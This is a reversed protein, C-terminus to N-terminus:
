RGFELPSSLGFLEGSPTAAWYGRYPTSIMTELTLGSMGPARPCSPPCVTTSRVFSTKHHGHLYPTARGGCRKPPRWLSEPRSPLGGHCSWETKMSAAVM